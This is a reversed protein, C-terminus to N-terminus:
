RPRYNLPNIYDWFKQFFTKKSRPTNATKVEIKKEQFMKSLTEQIKEKIFTVHSTNIATNKNIEVNNISRLNGEQNPFFIEGDDSSVDFFGVGHKLALSLVKKYAEEAVLWAFAVYIINKGISYDTVNDGDINEDNSFPGNLPPFTDKMEMFWDSLERTTIAPDDYSHKETWKTQENYWNMFEPKSHPAAKKNFVM